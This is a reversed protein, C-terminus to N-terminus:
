CSITWNLQLEDIGVKFQTNYLLHKYAPKSLLIVDIAIIM